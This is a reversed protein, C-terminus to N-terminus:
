NGLLENEDTPVPRTAQGGGMTVDAVFTRGTYADLQERAVFGIGGQQASVSQLLDRLGALSPAELRASCAASENCDVFRVRTGELVATVADLKAQVSGVAQMVAASPQTAPGEGRAPAAGPDPNTGAPMVARQTGVNSVNSQPLPAAAAPTGASTVGSTDGGSPEGTVKACSAAAIALFAAAVAGAFTKMDISRM